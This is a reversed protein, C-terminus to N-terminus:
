KWPPFLVPDANTSFHVELDAAAGSGGPKGDSGLSKISVFGKVPDYPVYEMVHGWADLKPATTCIFLINSKNSSLDDLSKPWEGFVAFYNSCAM